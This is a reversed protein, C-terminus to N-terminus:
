NNLLSYQRYCNMAEFSVSKNQTPAYLKTFSSIYENHTHTHTHTHVYACIKFTLKVLNTSKTESHQPVLFRHAHECYHIM